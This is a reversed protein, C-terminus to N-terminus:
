ISLCVCKVPYLVTCMKNFTNFTMQVFVYNEASHFIHTNM